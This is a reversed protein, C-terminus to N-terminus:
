LGKARLGFSVMSAIGILVVVINVVTWIPRGLTVLVFPNYVLAVIGAIWGWGVLHEEIALFTLYGFVGFVVWRLLIYYGSPNDLRLAILLMIVAVVQPIWIRKVEIPM